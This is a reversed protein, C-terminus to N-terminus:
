HIRIWSNFTHKGNDNDVIAHFILLSTNMSDIGSLWNGKYQFGNVFISKIFEMDQPVVLGVSWTVYLIIKLEKNLQHYAILLNEAKERVKSKKIRSNEYREFESILIPEFNNSEFWISDSRIEKSIEKNHIVPCESIAVVNNLTRGIQTIYNLGISHVMESYDIIGGHCM